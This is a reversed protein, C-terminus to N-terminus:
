MPMIAGGEVTRDLGAGAASHNGAVIAADNTGIVRRAATASV